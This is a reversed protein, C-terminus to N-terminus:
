LPPESVGTGAEGHTERIVKLINKPDDPQAMQQAEEDHRDLVNPLDRRLEELLSIIKASKRDSIVALELTLQERREAVADDRQQVVLILITACLGMMTCVGELYPFPPEDFRFVGLGNGAIWGAVLLILIALFLPKGIAQTVSRILNESRTVSDQHASHLAALDDVSDAVYQPLSEPSSPETPM